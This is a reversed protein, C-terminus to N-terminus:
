CTLVTINDEGVYLVQIYSCLKRGYVHFFLLAYTSQFHGFSLIKTIVIFTHEGRLFFIFVPFCASVQVQFRTVSELLFFPLTMVPRLHCSYTSRLDVKYFFELIKKAIDNLM